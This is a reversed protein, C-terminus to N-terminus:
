SPLPNLEIFLFCVGLTLLTFPREGSDQLHESISTMVYDFLVHHMCPVNRIISTYFNALMLGARPHRGGRKIDVVALDHAM